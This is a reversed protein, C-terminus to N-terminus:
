SRVEDRGQEFHWRAANLRDILSGLRAEDYLWAPTTDAIARLANELTEVERYEDESRLVLSLM